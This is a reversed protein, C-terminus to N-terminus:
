EITVEAAQPAVGWGFEGICQGCMPTHETNTGIEKPLGANATDTSLIWRDIQSRKHTQRQYLGVYFSHKSGCHSCEQIDFLAVAAKPTWERKLEWSKVIEENENREAKTIGRKALLQRRAKIDAAEKISDMSENLLDELSAFDDIVENQLLEDDSPENAPLNIVNM